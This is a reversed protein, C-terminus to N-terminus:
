FHLREATGKNMTDDRIDLLPEKGDRVQETRCDSRGVLYAGRYRVGARVRSLLVM